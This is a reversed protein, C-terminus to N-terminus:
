IPGFARIVLSVLEPAQPSYLIDQPSADLKFLSALIAKSDLIHDPTPNTSLKQSPPFVRRKTKPYRQRQTSPNTKVPVVSFKNGEEPYFSSSSNISCHELIEIKRHNLFHQVHALMLAYFFSTKAISSGPHKEHLKEEVRQLKQM